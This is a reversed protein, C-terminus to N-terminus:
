FGCKLNAPVAINLMKPPALNLTSMISAYEDSNQVQLRPNHKKEDIISSVTRGNYDHAPYVLTQDPLKLLKNFLSDYQALADGQQFDTRGTGKILLTDGTFVRDGMLFSYSDKTHGPTHIAKLNLGDLNISDGDRVGVDILQADTENGMVIQSKLQDRLTGSATIHDAHTHTEITFVLQLQLENLIQAYLPLQELVPDILLAERGLGSAILYTFTCSTPDFLQHFLM